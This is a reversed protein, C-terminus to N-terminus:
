PLKVLFSTERSIPTCFRKAKSRKQLRGEALSLRKKRIVGGESLVSAAAMASVCKAAATAAIM